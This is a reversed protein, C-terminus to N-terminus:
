FALSFSLRAGHEQADAALQGTYSASLRAGGGLAASLGAEIVAADEALPVGAITFPASDALTAETLPEIDGWAHQWGAMLNLSTVAEDGWELRIDTRTGLLTQTVSDKSSAVTLATSGGNESFDDTELHTYALNLFPELSATDGGFKRGVEGFTQFSAAEYDASLNENYGPFVVQRSTEVYHRSYSTGFRVSLAQWRAGGYAGIQYSDSGASSSRGDVDTEARGVGASIGARWHEGLPVDGGMLFGSSTREAKAANGDSDTEGWAGYANGWFAARGTEPATYATAGAASATRVPQPTEDFAGRLRTNMAGRMFESEELMTGKHSAHAEGSMADFAARAEPASFGLLALSLPDTSAITDLGGGVAKQNRTMGVSAFDTNNRTLTLFVNNTDYSLSPDLFAFASTVTGFTGTVGGAASLITYQTQPAYTGAEPLVSVAAGTDITATGGADILDSAGAANVEVEYTSGAAFSVNGAINM